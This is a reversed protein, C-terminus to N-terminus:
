VSARGIESHSSDAAIARNFYEEANSYENDRFKLYGEYTLANPDDNKINVNETPNFINCGAITLCAALAATWLFKSKLVNKM